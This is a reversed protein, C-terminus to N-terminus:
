AMVECHMAAARDFVDGNEAYLVKGIRTWVPHSAKWANQIAGARRREAKGEKNLDAMQQNLIQMSAGVRVYEKVLRRPRHLPRGEHHTIGANYRAVMNKHQRQTDVHLVVKMLRLKRSLRSMLALLEASTLDADVDACGKQSSVIRAQRDIPTSNLVRVLANVTM